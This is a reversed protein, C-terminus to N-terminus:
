KGRRAAAQRKRVERASSQREYINAVWKRECGIQRLAETVYRRADPRTEEKTGDINRLRRFAAVIEALDDGKAPTSGGHREIERRLTAAPPKRLLSFLWPVVKELAVDKELWSEVAVTVEQISQQRGEARPHLVDKFDERDPPPEWGEPDPEGLRVASWQEDITERRRKLFRLAEKELSKLAERDNAELAKVLARLVNAAPGVLEPHGNPRLTASEAWWSAVLATRFTLERIADDTGAEVFSYDVSFTGRDKAM